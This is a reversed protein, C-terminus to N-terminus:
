SRRRFLTGTITAQFSYSFLYERFKGIVTIDDCSTLKDVLRGLRPWSDIVATPTM